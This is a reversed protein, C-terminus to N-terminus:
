VGLELMISVRDVFARNREENGFYTIPPTMVFTQMKKWLDGEGLMERATVNKIPKNLMSHFQSNAAETLSTAVLMKVENKETDIIAFDVSAFQAKPETFDWPAPVPEIIYRGHYKAELVFAIIRYAIYEFGHGGESGYECISPSQVFRTVNTKWSYFQNEWDHSSDLLINGLSRNSNKLSIFERLAADHTRRGEKELQSKPM